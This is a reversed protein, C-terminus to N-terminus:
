EGVWHADITKERVNVVVKDFLRRMLGNVLPIDNAEIADRVDALRNMMADHGSLVARAAQRDIEADVTARQDELARLSAGLAPSHGQMIMAETVNSIKTELDTQIFRLRVIEKRNDGGPPWHAAFTQPHMVILKLRDYVTALKVTRYGGACKRVKAAACIVRECHSRTKFRTM